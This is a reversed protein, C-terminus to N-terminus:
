VPIFYAEPAMPITGRPFLAGAQTAYQWILTHKASIDRDWTWISLGNRDLFARDPEFAQNYPFDSYFVSHEPFKEGVTRAILHDVHRGVGAPCFLLEAATRRLLEGVRAHLQAIITRDGKAIRGRAIDFRYTPYRHSLEPALRDRLGKGVKPRQRLRFLADAEGLHLSRVGLQNLIKIDESRRAEFLSGADVASCRRVFSRAARTHPAPAAETFVTAVTVERADAAAKILAGCSLVADDLHPSLFLWPRDTALSSEVRNLYELSM